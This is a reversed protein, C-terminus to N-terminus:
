EAYYVYKSDDMYKIKELTTENSNEKVNEKMDSEGINM